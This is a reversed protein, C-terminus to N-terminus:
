RVRLPRPGDNGGSTYDPDLQRLVFTNLLSFVGTVAASLPSIVVLTRWFSPGGAIQNFITFAVSWFICLTTVTAALRFNSQLKLRRRSFIAIGCVAMLALLMPGRGGGALLAASWGVIWTVIWADFPRRRAACYVTMAVPVHIVVLDIHFLQAAVSFLLTCLCGWLILLATSM